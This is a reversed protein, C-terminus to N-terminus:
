NTLLTGKNQKNKISFYGGQDGEWDCLAFEKLIVSNNELKGSLFDIGMKYEQKPSIAGPIPKTIAFYIMYNSQNDSDPYLVIKFGISSVFITKLPIDGMIRFIPYIYAKEIWEKDTLAEGVQKSTM